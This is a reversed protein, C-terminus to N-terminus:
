EATSLAVFVELLTHCVGFENTHDIPEGDLESRQVGQVTGGNGNAQGQSHEVITAADLPTRCDHRIQHSIDAIARQFLEFRRQQVRFMVNFILGQDVCGDIRLIVKEKTRNLGWVSANYQIGTFGPAIFGRDRGGGPILWQEMGWPRGTRHDMRLQRLMITDGLDVRPRDERLGPVRLEYMPERPDVCHLQVGHLNYSNVASAEAEFEAALAGGFVAKYNTTTLSSFVQSSANSPVLPEVPGHLRLYQKGAFSSVYDHFDISAISTSSVVTAHSLNITSLSEPIYPQAYVNAKWAQTPAEAPQSQHDSQRHYEKAALAALGKDGSVRSISGDDRKKLPSRTRPDVIAIPKYKPPRFFTHGEGPLLPFTSKNSMSRYHKLSTRGTVLKQLFLTYALSPSPPAPILNSTISHDSIALYKKSSEHM